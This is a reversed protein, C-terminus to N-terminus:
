YDIKFVDGLLSAKEGYLSRIEDLDTRNLWPQRSFKSLLSKNRLKNHIPFVSKVNKWQGHGPMIGAGGLHKAWTVLHFM